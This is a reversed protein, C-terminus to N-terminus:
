VLGLHLNALMYAVPPGYTRNGYFDRPRRVHVGVYLGLGHNKEPSLSLLLAICWTCARLNTNSCKEWSLMYMSIQVMYIHELIRTAASREATNVSKEVTNVSRGMTECIEICIWRYLYRHMCADDPVTIENLVRSNVYRLSKGAQDGEGRLTTRTVTKSHELFGLIAHAYISMPEGLLACCLVCACALTWAAPHEGRARRRRRPNRRRRRRPRRASAGDDVVVDGGAVPPPLASSADDGCAAGLNQLQSCSCVVVGAAALARASVTPVHVGRHGWLPGYWNRQLGISGAWRNRQGYM